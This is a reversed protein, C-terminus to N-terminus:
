LVKRIREFVAVCSAFDHPAFPLPVGARMLDSGSVTSGEAAQYLGEPVGRLRVRLPEGNPMNLVRYACLIVRDEDAFQWATVNGAFPSLLRTFVGQQTTRRLVKVQRVQRRIEARDADTQASLDLEYGFNGGLAVDGRMRMDTVRGVQHNPVASVHAGMASAPYCLSTGYQISLRAAADTDDSTWTQPMYHLMGADFRGGGGSCSEFLVQPFAGTVTELVRYLGLMYRHATEGQRGDALTDSGAEMFNRNMDWKVYDIQASRLVGSVAEIVYDQVERRGMDLILQQRATTRRRSGAHLCWDPHARYLDSDPSVMEPEFWLGFKLGLGHIDRSLGDLGCPLKERNVVWDGLSCNDRNRKGFWGDDLVFLEIGDEAAARAIKLIKEPDFDFYTAEWNNILIPRERDRWYGRCVRQRILSHLAQSMANLGNASYAFLVEPAQFAEGPHLQWTFSRPNLGLTLRTSGYANEDATISFDGSYVLAAGLCEGSFETADPAALVAFPNHEHGSAGRCSSIERSLRAPPVREISREKAWAGHLHILDYRGPLTVCASGASQLTLPASGTNTYLISETIVPRDAYLTYRLEAELGTLADRLTIFLTEAEAADEVYAAPLGNLGPKGAEIRHGAYFLETCRQGQGDVACVLAPRYDGRGDTPCAYPLTQRPSDFSAGGRPACLYLCSAPDCLPAGLYPMLLEPENDGDLQVRLVLSVFDNRLHFTRNTQEYHIM